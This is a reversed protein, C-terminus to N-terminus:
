IHVNLRRIRPKLYFEEFIAGLDGPRLWPGASKGPSPNALMAGSTEEPHQRNRWYGMAVDGGQAWIECVRGVPHDTRTDLDVIRLTSARPAGYSVRYPGDSAESECRKAQGPSLHRGPGATAVYLTAEALGKSPRAFRYIFRKLTAPNVREAGTVM